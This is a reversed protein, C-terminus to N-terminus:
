PYSTVCSLATPCISSTYLRPVSSVLRCRYLCIVFCGPNGLLNRQTDLQRLTLHQDDVIVPVTKSSIAVFNGSYPIASKGLYIRGTSACFHAQCQLTSLSTICLTPSTVKEENKSEPCCMRPCLTGQFSIAIASPQFHSM